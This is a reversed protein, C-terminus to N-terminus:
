QIFDKLNLYGGGVRAFITDGKEVKINVKRHGFRYIGEAERVFMLNM